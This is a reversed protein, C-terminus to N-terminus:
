EDGQNNPKRIFNIPPEMLAITESGDLGSSIITESGNTLGTKVIVKEFLKDKLVYVVKSSDKEFISISPAMITDQINQVLVECNASLGPLVKSDLSDIDIVIEYSKVKFKYDMRKSSLSKSKVTGTTEIDKLSEPRVIVKQGKEIRKYEAEQVMLLLQMSDLDPLEILPMDMFVTTGVKTKGGGSSGSGSGSMFMIMPSTSYVVMGPKPAIITLLDMQDQFRQVLQEKQIIQSKLARISQENIRKQAKLKKLIKEQQIQNKKLELVMIQKKVEPAFKLQVSDLNSYKTKVKNEELQANLNSLQMANNAEQKILDAQAQELEKYYTDYFSTIDPAELVCITDGTEAMTGEEALEIVKLMPSHVRPSVVTFNNASELTAIGYITETFNRRSLDYTIIELKKNKQCSSCGILIIILGVFGRIIKKKIV